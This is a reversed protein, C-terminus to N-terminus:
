IIAATFSVITSINDPSPTKITVTITASSDTSTPPIKVGFSYYTPGTSLGDPVTYSSLGTISGASTAASVTTGPPLRNLNEDGVIVMYFGTSGRAISADALAFGTAAGAAGWTATCGGSMSYCNNVDPYPYFYADGSFVIRTDAWIIKSTLCGTSQCQPGDWRGNPGDYIGNGNTDIFQEIPYGAVTGDDWKGNDNSDIFPEGLDMFGESRKGGIGATVCDPAAVCSASGNVQSTICGAWTNPTGGDCECTYGVPCNTTAYSRTFMGDGNEDIFGEEGQTTGLVTAWGDRPNDNYKLAGTPCLPPGTHGTTDPLWPESSSGFYVAWDGHDSDGAATNKVGAPMQCETMFTVNAVGTSDTKGQTNIAGGEAWFTIPTNQLINYDGFRDALFASVTSTLGLYKLGQLNIPTRALSFHGASAIGGGISVQTSSSSITNQGYVTAGSIHSATATGYVGRTCGTFSNGGSTGAYSILENDIKIRGSVPFGTTSTVPITTDTAAIAATLTTQNGSNISTSAIVTCPGAISGSNLITTADGNVTSGTTNLLSEGGGPGILKFSVATSLSVPNGNVDKVEFTLTSQTQGASGQLAILQPNASVFQISAVAAPIITLSTTSSVSGATATITVTGSTNSAVFTTTATGNGSSTSSVGSSLTGFTTAPNLSFTVSTGDPVPNGNIDKVTATITATGLVTISTPNAAVIVSAPPAANITVTTSGTLAFSPTISTYTGTVIVSTAISQSALTVTAVGSANTIASAASLTAVAQSLSFNVTAGPVPNGLNNLLTATITSASNTIISAPNVTVSLSGNGSPATLMVTATGTVSLTTATIIETSPNSTSTLTVTAVGSANTVASPASLTANTNNLSFTVTAGAVPNTSNDLVTATITSTSTGNAIISTPSAVVNVSGGALGGTITITISATKTGATATVTVTTNTPSTATLTVTANGNTTLASSANLSAKLPDSLTFSVSTGDTVANGTGDVVRATITSTGGVFVSSPNASLIIASTASANITVSVSGTLTGSTATITVTGTNGTATFTVRAVGGTTTASTASLSGMGTAPSLSFLVTTGDPVNLTATISTIGYTNISTPNASVTIGGASGTAAIPVGASSLNISSAKCGISLVLLAILGGIALYRVHRM